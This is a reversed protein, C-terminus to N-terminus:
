DGRERGSEFFMSEIFPQRANKGLILLL